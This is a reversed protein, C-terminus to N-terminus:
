EITAKISNAISEAKPGLIVQASQKGIRVVGKSGLAKLAEENFLSCDNVGLRLRTICADVSVINSEGGLAEIYAVPDLGVEPSVKSEEDDVAPTPLKFVKIAFYFIVFYLVFYAGILPVLLWPKTALGWNLVFDILGASFGFGHLIGLSNCIVM